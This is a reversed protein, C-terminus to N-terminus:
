AGGEAEDSRSGMGAQRGGAGSRCDARPPKCDDLSLFEAWPLMCGDAALVCLGFGALHPSHKSVAIPCVCPRFTLLPAASVASAATPVLAPPVFQWADEVSLRGQGYLSAALSALAATVAIAGLMCSAACVRVICNRAGSEGRGGRGVHHRMKSPSGRSSMSRASRPRHSSYQSTSEAEDQDCACAVM